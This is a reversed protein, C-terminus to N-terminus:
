DWMCPSSGKRTLLVRMEVLDDGIAETAVGFYPGKKGKSRVYGTGPRIWTGAFLFLKRYWGKRTYSRQM